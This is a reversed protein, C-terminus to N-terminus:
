QFVYVAGSEPALNNSGDGGIGTANSAESYASAAIVGGAMAVAWGFADAAQANAATYTSTEAWVSGTRHFAIIRGRAANWLALGLVLDDGDLAFGRSDWRYENAEPRAPEFRAERVWGTVTNRFVHVVAFGNNTPYDYRSLVQVVAVTDGSVALDFGFLGRENGGPLDDELKAEETWGGAGRRFVRASGGIPDSPVDSPAGVVALDGSAAVVLGDSLSGDFSWTTGTRRYTYTAGYANNTPDLAAVILNDGALAVSRGFRWGPVATPPKVYAEQAWVGGSRRFVYVAGSDISNNNNQAGNVGHGSSDEYAAGIAITDGDIAVAGGFEDHAETNSAKLYAELAWTAGTRRYVMAAGAEDAAISFMNGNVGTSSSDERAVGSVMADGSMALAYGFHNDVRTNPAKVYLQVPPTTWARYVSVLYQRTTIEDQATVLINMINTGAQLDIVPSPSGSAVTVGNVTITANANTATPTVQFTTATSPLEMSYSLTAPAFSPVLAGTSPVLSGLRADNSGLTLKRKMAKAIRTGAKMRQYVINAANSENAGNELRPRLEWETSGAIVFPEGLVRTATIAVGVLDSGQTATAHHDEWAVLWRGDGLAVVSPRYEYAASQTIFFRQEGLDLAGDAGIRRAWIDRYDRDEWVVLLKGGGAAISPNRATPRPGGFPDRSIVVPASACPDMVTGDVQVRTAVIEYAKWVEGQTADEWVVVFVSNSPDWAVAPRTQNAALRCINIRTYTGDPRVLAGAIDADNAPLSDDEWVVLAVGGGAAIAPRRQDRNVSLKIGAPDLNVGADTFRAAYVDVNANRYDTWAAVYQSGDHALAPADQQYTANSIVRAGYTGDLKGGSVTYRRAMIDDGYSRSDSWVVLQGAPSRAMAPTRQSNYTHGNVLIPSPDLAGGAGDFRALAVNPLGTETDEWVAVHGGGPRPSMAVSRQSRFRDNLAFVPGVPVFSPDRRQAFVGTTQNATDRRDDWALLCGTADCSATPNSMVTTSSAVLVGGVAGTTDVIANTTTDIRAAWIDGRSKWTVVFYAGDATLTAAPALRAGTDLSVDFGPGATNDTVSVRSSRISEGLANSEQWAVLFAGGNASAVTPTYRRTPGPPDTPTPTPLVLDGGPHPVGATSLTVGGISNDQQWVVVSGNADSAVAPSHEDVSKVDAFAGLPTVVGDTAVFAGMIDGKLKNTATLVEVSWVVIWRTGTWAVAPQAENATTGAIVLGRPDLTTGDANIRACYVDTSHGARDDAWVVLQGSPSSAVAPQTASAGTFGAITPEVNVEATITPDLVAPFASVDVVAAPVRMAIGDDTWAVPVATRAGRADIWTAPSYRVRQGGTTRFLLGTGDTVVASHGTVRVRVEVDGASPRADFHWSQEVGDDRNDVREIASPREIAVGGDDSLRAGRTEGITAFAIPAGRDAAHAFRIAGDSVVVDHVASAAAFGRASAEFSTADLGQETGVQVVIPEAPPAPEDGEVQCGVLVTLVLAFWRMPAIM